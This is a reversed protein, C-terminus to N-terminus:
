GGLGACRAECSRAVRANGTDICAGLVRLFSVFLVRGWGAYAVIEVRGCEDVAEEVVAVDDLAISV